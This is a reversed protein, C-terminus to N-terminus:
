ARTDSGIGYDRLFNQLFEVEAQPWEEARAYAVLCDMDERMRQLEAGQLRQLYTSLYNLAENAAADNIVDEDSGDFFGVAHLVALLLPHVGLEAPIEPFVAAGEPVENSDSM